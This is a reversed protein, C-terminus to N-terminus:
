SAISKYNKVAQNALPSDLPGRGLLLSFEPAKLPWGSGPDSEPEVCCVERHQAPPKLCHPLVSTCDRAM